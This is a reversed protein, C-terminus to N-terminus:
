NFLAFSPTMLLVWPSYSTNSCQKSQPEHDTGTDDDMETIKELYYMFVPLCSQPLIIRPLFLVIVSRSCQGACIHLLHATIGESFTGCKCPNEQVHLDCSSLWATKMWGAIFSCSILWLTLPLFWLLHSILQSRPRQEAEPTVGVPLMPPSARAASCTVPAALHDGCHHFSSRILMLFCTSQLCCCIKLGMHSSLGAVSLLPRPHGPFRSWRAWRRNINSCDCCKSILALVLTEPRARQRRTCKIVFFDLKWM